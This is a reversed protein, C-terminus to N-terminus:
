IKLYKKKNKIFIWPYKRINFTWLFENLPYKELYPIPVLLFNIWRPSYSSDTGIKGQQWELDSHTVLFHVQNPDSKEHTFFLFVIWSLGDYTSLNFHTSKRTSKDLKFFYFNYFFFLISFYFLMFVILEFLLFFIYM